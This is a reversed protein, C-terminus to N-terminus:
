INKANLRKWEKWEIVDAIALNLDEVTDYEGGDYYDYWVGKGSHNTVLFKWKNEMTRYREAGWSTDGILESLNFSSGKGWTVKMVRGRLIDIKVKSLM